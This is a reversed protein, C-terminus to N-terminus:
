IDVSLKMEPHDLMWQITCHLPKPESASYLVSRWEGDATDGRAARDLGCAEAALEFAQMSESPGKVSLAGQDPAPRSDHCGTLAIATGMITLAASVGPDSRGRGKM